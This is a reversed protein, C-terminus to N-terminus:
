IEKTYHYGDEGLGYYNVLIGDRLFGFKEYLHIAVSNSKRVELTLRRCGKKRAFEEAWELLRRGISRRRYAPHVTLSYIRCTSWDGWWALVIMGRIRGAEEEVAICSRSSSIFRRFQFRRFRNRSFGLIELEMLQDLDASTAERIM